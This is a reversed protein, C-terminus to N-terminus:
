SATGVTAQPRDHAAISRRRRLNSPRASLGPFCPQFGPLFAGAALDFFAFSPTDGGMRRFLAKAAESYPFVSM